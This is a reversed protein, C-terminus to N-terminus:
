PLLHNRLLQLSSRMLMLYVAAAYLCCIAPVAIIGAAVTLIAAL